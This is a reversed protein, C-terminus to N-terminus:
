ILYAFSGVLTNSHAIDLRMGEMVSSERNVELQISGRDGELCFM